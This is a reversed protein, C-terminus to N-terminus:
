KLRLLAARLEPESTRPSLWIGFFPDAFGTLDIGGTAVGNHFVRVPKGPQYLATIEDGDKVGPFVPVMADIFNKLKTDDLSPDVRKMESRARDVIEKGTFRMHYRLTLAFPADMSWKNADTWLEADYPTIVLVTFAGHGYPKNAHIVTTIESPADALATGGALYLALLLASLAKM